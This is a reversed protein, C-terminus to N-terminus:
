SSMDSLRVGFALADGGSGLEVLEEDGDSIINDWVAMYFSDPLETADFETSPRRFPRPSQTRTLHTTDPPSPNEDNATVAAGGASGDSGSNSSRSGSITSTSGDGGSSGSGGSSSSSSSDESTGFGACIQPVCVRMVYSCTAPEEISRIYAHAADTLDPCCVHQVETRRGAGTEDCHQGGTFFSSSFYGKQAANKQLTSFPPRPPNSLRKSSQRLASVLM